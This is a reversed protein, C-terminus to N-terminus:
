NLLDKKKGGDALYADLLTRLNRRRIENIEMRSMIVGKIFKIFLWFIFQM